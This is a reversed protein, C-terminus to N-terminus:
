MNHCHDCGPCVNQGSDLGLGTRRSNSTLRARPGRSTCCGCCRNANPTADCTGTAVASAASRPGQKRRHLDFRGPRCQRSVATKVLTGIANPRHRRSCAPCCISLRSPGDCRPQRGRSDLVLGTGRSTSTLRGRPDRRTCCGCCRNANPSADCTNAAVASAASQPGQKRRHLDLRGPWCGSRITSRALSGVVILRHRRSGADRGCGHRSPRDRRPARDGRDVGLRTRRRWSCSTITAFASGRTCAGRSSTLLAVKVGEYVTLM